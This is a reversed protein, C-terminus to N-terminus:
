LHLISNNVQSIISNPWNRLLRHIKNWSKIKLPPNAFVKLPFFFENLMFNCGPRIGTQTIVNEKQLPQLVFPWEDRELTSCFARTNWRLLAQTQIWALFNEETSQAARSPLPAQCQKKPDKQTLYLPLSRTMLQEPELLDPYTPRQAFYIGQLRGHSAKWGSSMSTKASHRRLELPDRQLLPAPNGRQLGGTKSIGILLFGPQM